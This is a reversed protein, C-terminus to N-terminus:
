DNIRFRNYPGKYSISGLQTIDRFSKSCTQCMVENFMITNLPEGFNYEPTETKVVVNIAFKHGNSSCFLQDKAKKLVDTM